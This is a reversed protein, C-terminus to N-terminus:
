GGTTWAINDVVMMPGSSSVNSRWGTGYPVIRYIMGGHQRGFTVTQNIGSGSSVVAITNFTGGPVAAQILM